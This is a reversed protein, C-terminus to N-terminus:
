LLGLRKAESHFERLLSQKQDTPLFAFQFGSEALRVLQPMSLNLRQRVNVYTEDLTARFMAPDDTALTVPVGRLVFKPLPHNEFRAESVGTLKALAGTCLNSEPCIELPIHREILLDMLQEDHISAIGHGIRQAGLIEVADRVSQPGGMEGAHALRHLGESAVYDYVKRFDEAPASEEDGGLGFAVVGESKLHVAVRAVEMAKDAGFQRVADFIWQVRLLQSEAQSDFADRIARFNAAVDQKRLLMVGASLTIEAYRVNQKRLESARHKAVMAYDAPARLYSTAWKFLEIFESFTHTNYRAAVEDHDLKDGHHRALQMLLAPTLCGELHLHLEAKPLRHLLQSESDPVSM